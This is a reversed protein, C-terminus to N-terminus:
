CVQDLWATVLANGQKGGQYLNGQTCVLALMPPHSPQLQDTTANDETYHVAFWMEQFQLQLLCNVM